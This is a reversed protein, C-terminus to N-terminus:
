RDYLLLLYVIGKSLTLDMITHEIVKKSDYIYNYPYDPYDDLDYKKWAMDFMKMYREDNHVYEQFQKRCEESTKPNKSCDKWDLRMREIPNEEDEDKPIAEYHFYDNGNVIATYAIQVRTLGSGQKSFINIETNLFEDESIKYKIYLACRKILDNYFIVGYEELAFMDSTGHYYM